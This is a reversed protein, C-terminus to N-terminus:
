KRPPPPPPIPPFPPAQFSVPMSIEGDIIAKPSTSRGYVRSNDEGDARIVTGEPAVGALVGRSFSYSLIGAGISADTDASAKRGVPGAAATADSGITFKSTSLQDRTRTNMVLLVLTQDTSFALSGGEVRFFLPASWGKATACSLVGERARSSIFAGKMAPVVGICDARELISKPIAGDGNKQIQTVIRSSDRVLDEPAQAYISLASQLLLLVAFRIAIQHM